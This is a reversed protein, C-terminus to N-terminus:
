YEDSIVDSFVDDNHSHLNQTLFGIEGFESSQTFTLLDEPPMTLNEVEETLEIPQQNMLPILVNEMFETAGDNVEVSLVTSIDPVPFITPSITSNTTNIGITAPSLVLNSSFIPLQQSQPPQQTQLSERHRTLTFTDHSDIGFRGAFTPLLQQSPPDFLQDSAIAYFPRYTNLVSPNTHDGNLSTAPSNSRITDPTSGSDPFPTGPVVPSMTTVIQFQSQHYVEEQSPDM